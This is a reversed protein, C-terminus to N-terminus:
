WFPEVAGIAQLIIGVEGTLDMGGRHIGIGVGIFPAIIDVMRDTVDIIRIIVEPHVRDLVLPQAGQAQEELLVVVRDSVPPASVEVQVVAFDEGAFVEGAAAFDEGAVEPCKNRWRPQQKEPKRNKVSRWIGSFVLM